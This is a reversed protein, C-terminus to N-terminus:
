PKLKDQNEQIYEKLSPKSFICAQKLDLVTSLGIKSLNKSVVDLLAIENNECSQSNPLIGLEIYDKIYWISLKSIGELAPEEDKLAEFENTGYFVNLLRSYLIHYINTPSFNNKDDNFDKALLYDVREKTHSLSEILDLRSSNWALSLVKNSMWKLGELDHKIKSIKKEIENVDAKKMELTNLGQIENSLIEICNECTRNYKELHHALITLQHQLPETTSLSKLIQIEKEDADVMFQFFVNPSLGVLIPPFKNLNIFLLEKVARLNEYSIKKGVSELISPEDTELISSRIIDNAEKEM